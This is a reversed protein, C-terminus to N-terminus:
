VREAQWYGLDVPTSRGFIDVLVVIRGNAEDIVDVTGEFGEFGGEKIKM